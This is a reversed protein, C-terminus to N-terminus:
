LDYIKVGMRELIGSLGESTYYEIEIKGKNIDGKIVVNTGLNKKIKEEIALLEYDLKTERSVSKKEVERVSLKKKLIEKFIQNRESEKISLIAKGHGAAIEGSQLAKQIHKPLSLLRITNAISSREKGVAKSIKEQTLGFEDILRKYAKAEEIPNLNERQLNEILALELSEEDSVDKVFAPIKTFGAKVAAKFRREGAIIEYGEDIARVVIPQLIGKEKISLLLENDKDEEFRERAQYRSPKIKEKEIEIFGEEGPLLADLGRGLAKKM